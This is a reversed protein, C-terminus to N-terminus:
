IKRFPQMVPVEQNLFNEMKEVTKSGILFGHNKLNIAFFDTDTYVLTFIEYVERLDGCPFYHETSPASQNFFAHGHIMYNINTFKKYIEIQIPTDVSPKKNGVYGDENVLVMDDPTIETKNINRPSFLYHENCRISPFTSMCRTSCNGFYRSDSHPIINKANNNVLSM